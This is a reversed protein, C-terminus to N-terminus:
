CESNFTNCLQAPVIIHGLGTGPRAQSQQKLRGAGFEENAGVEETHQM